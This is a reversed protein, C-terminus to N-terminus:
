TPHGLRDSNSINVLGHIDKHLLRPISSEIGDGEYACEHDDDGRPLFNEVFSRVSITFISLEDTPSQRRDSAVLDCQQPITLSVRQVGTIPPAASRALVIRSCHDAHHRCHRRRLSRKRLSPPPRRPKIPRPSRIAPSFVTKRARLFYIDYQYSKAPSSPMRGRRM